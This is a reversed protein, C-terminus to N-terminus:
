ALNLRNVQNPFQEIFQRLFRRINKRIIPDLIWGIVPLKKYHIELRIRTGSGSPEMIFYFTLERALPFSLLKEGYVLNNAGFDNTVSEFEAKGKDFVCIHRTGVRNVRDQKFKFESVGKQWQLKMEFNSLQEYAELMEQAVTIEGRVPNTVKLGHQIPPPDHVEEHLNSLPIYFYAVEGFEEYIDTGESTAVWHLGASSIGEGGPDLSTTFLVYETNAISNKLLKHALVLDAGFAKKQNRITSFGLLGSHVIFKLTLGSATSCAGCQCIRSKDYMRLHEHFRIFTSRVQFLLSRLDPVKGYKYFLVADGEVESVEMQLENSDIIIELLESIIHESHNIETKNVFQTFGSIDPIFILSDPESQSM